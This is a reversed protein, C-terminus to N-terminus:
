PWHVIVVGVVLAVVALILLAHSVTLLTANRSQLQENEEMWGAESRLLLILWEKETYKEDVLRQIASPGIGTQISTTTYTAIAAIFSFILLGVGSISFGNIYPSLDLGNSQLLFSVATLILGLLLLAMRSTKAAKNDVDNFTQIQHDLVARAESQTKRLAEIDHDSLLEEQSAEEGDVEKTTEGGNPM